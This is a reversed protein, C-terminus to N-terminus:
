RTSNSQRSQAATQKTMDDQIITKDQYHPHKSTIKYYRKTKITHTNTKDDSRTIDNQRSQTPTQKTM